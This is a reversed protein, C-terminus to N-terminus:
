PTPHREVYTAAQSALYAPCRWCLWVGPTRSGRWEHTFPACLPGHPECTACFRMRGYAYPTTTVVTHCKDCPPMM